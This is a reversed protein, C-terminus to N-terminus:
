ASTYLLFFLVFLVYRNKVNQAARGRNWPLLLLFALVTGLSVYGFLGGAFPQIIGMALFQHYFLFGPFLLFFSIAAVTPLLKRTQGPNHPHTASVYGNQM